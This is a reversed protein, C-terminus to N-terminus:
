LFLHPLVAKGESYEDAQCGKGEEARTIAEGIEDEVISKWQLLMDVDISSNWIKKKNDEV